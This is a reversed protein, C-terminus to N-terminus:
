CFSCSNYHCLLWYSKNELLVSSQIERWLPPEPSQAQPRQPKISYSWRYRPDSVLLHQKVPLALSGIGSPLHRASCPLAPMVCSGHSWLWSWKEGRRTDVSHLTPYAVLQQKNSPDKEKFSHGGPNGLELWLDCVAPANQSPAVKSPGQKIMVLQVNFVGPLRLSFGASVPNILEPTCSAHPSM